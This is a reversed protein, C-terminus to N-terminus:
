VRQIGAGGGTGHKGGKRGRKEDKSRLDGWLSEVLLRSRDGTERNDRGM